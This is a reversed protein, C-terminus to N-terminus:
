FLFIVIVTCLHLLTNKAHTGLHHPLSSLVSPQTPTRQGDQARWSVRVRVTTALTKASIGWLYLPIIAYATFHCGIFDDLLAHLHALSSIFLEHSSRSSMYARTEKFNHTSRLAESFCHCAHILVVPTTPKPNKTPLNSFSASSPFHTLVEPPFLTSPLQRHVHTTMSQHTHGDEQPPKTRFSWCPMTCILSSTM